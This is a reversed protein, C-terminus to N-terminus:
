LLDLEDPAPPQYNVAAEWLSLLGVDQVYKRALDRRDFDQLRFSDFEMSDVKGEWVVHVQSPEPWKIRDKVLHLFARLEKSCCRIALVASTVSGDNGSMASPLGVTVLSGVIGHDKCHLTLKRRAADDRGNAASLAVVAGCIGNLRLDADRKQLKKQLRQEPTLKYQANHQLVLQRQAEQHARLQRELATPDAAAQATMLSRIKSKSMSLPPAAANPQGEGSKTEEAKRVREEKAKAAKEAKTLYVPMVVSSAVEKERREKPGLVTDPVEVKGTVLDWRVRFLKDDAYAGDIVKPVDLEYSGHILFPRDWWYVAEEEREYVMPTVAADGMPVSAASSVQDIVDRLKQKKTLRQGQQLVGGAAM